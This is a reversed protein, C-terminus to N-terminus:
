VQTQAQVVDSLQDLGETLLRIKHKLKFESDEAQRLKITLTQSLATHEAQTSQM